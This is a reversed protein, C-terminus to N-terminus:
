LSGNPQGSVTARAISVGRSNTFYSETINFVVVVAFGAVFIEM